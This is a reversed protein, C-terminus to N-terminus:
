RGTKRNRADGGYTTAYEFMGDPIIREGAEMSIPWNYQHSFAVMDPANIPQDQLTVAVKKVHCNKFMDGLWRITRLPALFLDGQVNPQHDAKIFASSGFRAVPVGLANVALTGTTFGEGLYQAQMHSLDTEFGRKFLGYVFVPFLKDGDPEMLTTTM